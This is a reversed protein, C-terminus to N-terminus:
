APSRSPGSSRAATASSARHREEIERMKSATYDLSVGQPATVRLMVTARDEPPTLEREVSGFMLWATVGFVLALTVVVWPAELAAHLLRHYTRALVGPAEAGELDRIEHARLMRSAMMPCLSLAVFASIAVSLALTM